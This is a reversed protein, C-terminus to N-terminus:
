PVGTCVATEHTDAIAQARAHAMYLRFCWSVELLVESLVARLSVIEDESVSELELIRRFPNTRIKRASCEYNRGARRGALVNGPNV